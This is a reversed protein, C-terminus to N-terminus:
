GKYPIRNDRFVYLSRTARIRSAGPSGGRLITRWKYADFLVARGHEHRCMSYLGYRHAMGVGDGANRRIGNGTWKNLGNDM